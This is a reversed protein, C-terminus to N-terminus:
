NGPPSEEVTMFSWELEQEQQSALAMVTSNTSCATQPANWAVYFSSFQKVLKASTSASGPYTGSGKFFDGLPPANGTAVCNSDDNTLAHTSIGYGGNANPAAYILDDIANPVTIDIGIASLELTTTTANDTQKSPETGLQVVNPKLPLSQGSGDRDAVLGAATAILVIFLFIIVSEVLSFGREDLNHQLGVMQM